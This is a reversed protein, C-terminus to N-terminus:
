QSKESFEKLRLLRASENRQLWSDQSLIDYAQSFYQKAKIPNQLIHYLEGLEEYIYGSEDNNNKEALLKLQLELAENLRKLYRYTKAISWRAISEANKAGRTQHFEQCLQFYILAESYIKQDFLDWGINNYFVGIWGKVKPDQSNQAEKLGILNWKKKEEFNSSSIGVMHAADIALDTNQRQHSKEYANIFLARAVELQGSSNHTRGRELLYRIEAIPTESSLQPEVGDLVKHAAQYNGSLSHTRAIQTQIQLLYDRPAKIPSNLIDTFRQRSKEPNSYDWLGAINPLDIAGM